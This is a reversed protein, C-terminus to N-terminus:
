NGESKKKRDDAGICIAAEFLRMAYKRASEACGPCLPDTQSEVLHLLTGTAVIMGRTFGELTVDPSANLLDNVRRVILDSEIRLQEEKKEDDERSM